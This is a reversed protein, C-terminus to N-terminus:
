SATWTPRSRDASDHETIPMPRGFLYGQAFTVGLERLVQATQADEVGEAITQLGFGDALEVIASVVARDRQSSSAERVFELDIKLYQIPLRKLYTFSAFGTGFDDLAFSCGLAVMHEAFRQGRELNQMVATETIEFMIAAPDVGHRQIEHEIVSLVVPDAASAASLNIAVSQGSCALRVARKIVWQDIAGVLGCREATPLFALPAILQDDHDRLRLLLEHQITAGSALDVIPQAHLVFRDNDLADRIRGVWTERDAEFVTPTVGPEFVNVRAGGLSKSHYMAADARQILGDVALEGDSVPATALALGISATLLVSSHGLDIPAEIGASIRDAVHAADQSSTLGPLLVIFEDGGLRCVSDMPRVAALLRSAIERLVVDGSAHGRTDNIAKFEDLDVFILGVSQRSRNALALAQATRDVLLARNALGTLTDHTAQHALAHQGSELERLRETQLRQIEHRHANRQTLDAFTLSLVVHDGVDLSWANIWVPVTQSSETVIEVEITGGSPGSIQQLAAVGGEALLEGVPSGILEVLPRGALEALSLNAYLIIGAQSVTAAGDRMNDVFLRYPRDASSLTFVQADSSADRVVLADVEGCRIARLTEEARSLRARLDPESAELPSSPAPPTRGVIAVSRGPAYFPKTMKM